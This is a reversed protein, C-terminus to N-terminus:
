TKKNKKEILKNIKLLNKAGEDIRQKGLKCEILAYRNNNLHVVCDIEVDSKDHYYYINSKFPSTHISLDHICLNKFIFGFVELDDDCTKPSMNLTAVEILPKHINKKNKSKM